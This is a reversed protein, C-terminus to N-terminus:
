FNLFIESLFIKTSVDPKIYSSACKLKENPLGGPTWNFSQIPKALLPVPTDSTFENGTRTFTFNGNPDTISTVTNNQSIYKWITIRNKFRVVYSVEQVIGGAMMSYNSAPPLDFFLDIVGFINDRFDVTDNSIAFRQPPVVDQWFDVDGVPVANEREIFKIAKHLKLDDDSFFIEGVYIDGHNSKDYKSISIFDKAILDEQTAYRLSPAANFSDTDSLDPSIGRPIFKRSEYLVNSNLFINGKYIDPPIKSPDNFVYVPFRSNDLKRWFNSESVPHNTLPPIYQIAEFMETGNFVLSSVEYEKSVIYDQIVSSLYLTGNNIDENAAHNTFYYIEDKSNFMKLATINNFSPNKLKLLFRLSTSQDIPIIPKGSGDVEVLAIFKDGFVKYLIRNGSLTKKTNVTPIMEIDNFAEQQNYYDHQLEVSFLIKYKIEM